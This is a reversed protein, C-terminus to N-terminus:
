PVIKWAQQTVAALRLPSAINASLWASNAGTVTNRWVIDHHRDGNIDAISAPVWATGAPSLTVGAARIGSPWVVNAGTVPNRWLVDSRNDGNFDGVGAVNWPANVTSLSTSTFASNSSVNTFRWVVNAGTAGNRWLVESRGDGDLDGTGVVRWALNAVPNTPYVYWFDAEFGNSVRFGIANNGTVRHRWLLDSVGNGDFDGIGAIDWDPTGPNMGWDFGLVQSRVASASFWIVMTGTTRNRWLIDAHRDGDFDGCGPIRWDLNSVRPLNLIAASDAHRWIVDFGTAANRWLLDSRGDGDFDNHIAASAGVMPFTALAVAVAPLFRKM